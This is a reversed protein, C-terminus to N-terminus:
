LELKDGIMMDKLKFKRKVEIRGVKSVFEVEKDELTIASTKPFLFVVTGKEGPFKQANEAQIPDKDKRVLSAIKALEPLQQDPIRGVMDPPLGAVAVVYYPVEQGLFKKAKDSDAQEHGLATVVQAQRIPLASQWRVHLTMALGSGGGGVQGSADTAGGGSRGGGGGMGGVSSMPSASEGGMQGGGGGGRRGGGGGDGRDDMSPAAFAVDHSWPSNILLKAADKESWDTYPKKVWFDEAILVLATCGLIILCRSLSQM